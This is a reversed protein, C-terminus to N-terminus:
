KKEEEVINEEAKSEEATEIEVITEESNNALKQLNDNIKFLVILLECWLRAFILGGIILGLGTLFSGSDSSFMVGLGSVLSSALMFWYIFTIVKPTLMSEFYFINKITSKTSDQM